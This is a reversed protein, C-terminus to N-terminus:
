ENIRREQLREEMEKHLAKAEWRAYDTFSLPKTELTAIKAISKIDNLLQYEQLSQRNGRQCSKLYDGFESM